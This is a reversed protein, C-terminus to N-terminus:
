QPPVLATSPDVVALVAGPVGHGEVVLVAQGQQSGPDVGVPGQRAHLDHAQQGGGPTGAEAPSSQEAVPHHLGGRDGLLDGHLFHANYAPWRQSTRWGAPTRSQCGARGSRGEMGTAWNREGSWGGCRGTHRSWRSGSGSDPPSEPRRGPPGSAAHGKLHAHGGGSNASPPMSRSSPMRM